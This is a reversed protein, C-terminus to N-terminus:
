GRISGFEDRLLERIVLGRGGVSDVRLQEVANLGEKNYFGFVANSTVLVADGREEGESVAVHSPSDSFFNCSKSIQIVFSRVKLRDLQRMILSLFATLSLNTESQTQSLSATLSLIIFFQLIIFIKNFLHTYYIFQHQHKTFIPSYFLFLLKKKTCFLLFIQM